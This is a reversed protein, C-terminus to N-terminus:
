GAQQSWWGRKACAMSGSVLRLHCNRGESAVRNLIRRVTCFSSFRVLTASWQQFCEEHLARGCGAASEDYTLRSGKDDEATM